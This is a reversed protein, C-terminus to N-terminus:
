LGKADLDYSVKPMSTPTIIPQPIHPSQTPQNLMEMEESIDLIYCLMESGKRVM